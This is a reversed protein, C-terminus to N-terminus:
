AANSASSSSCSKARSEYGTQMSRLRFYLQKPARLAFPSGNVPAIALLVCAILNNGTLGLRLGM